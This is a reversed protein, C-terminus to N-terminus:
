WSDCAAKEVAAVREHARTRLDAVDAPNDAVLRLLAGDDLDVVEVAVPPLEGLRLGHHGGNRHTGHHGLGKQKGPGHLAAAHQARARLEEVQERPAVLTLDVGGPTDAISLRAGVVGLPCSVITASTPTLAQTNSAPPATGACASLVTFLGCALISARIPNAM